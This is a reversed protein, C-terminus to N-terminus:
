GFKDGILFHSLSAYYYNSNLKDYIKAQYENTKRYDTYRNEEVVTLPTNNKAYYAPFPKGIAIEGFYYYIDQGGHNNGMGTTLVVVGNEDAIREQIDTNNSGERRMKFMAHPYLGSISIQSNAAGKAMILPVGGSIRAEFYNGNFSIDLGFVEKFCKRLNQFETTEM